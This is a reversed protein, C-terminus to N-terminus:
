LIEHFRLKFEVMEAEQDDLFIIQPLYGRNMGEIIKNSRAINPCKENLWEYVGERTMCGFSSLTFHGIVKRDGEM